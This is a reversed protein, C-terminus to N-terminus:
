ISQYVNSKFLENKFNELNFKNRQPFNKLYLHACEILEMNNIKKTLESLSSYYLPYEYGLYDIIPGLKNVFIPTNRVICEVILNSAAVEEYNTFVLNESLLQDYSDNEVDYLKNQIKFLEKPIESKQIKSSLLVTKRFITKSEVFLDVKRLHHGIHLLKKNKNDNFSDMSFKKIGEVKTPHHLFSIPINKFQPQKEFLKKCASSLVFIGKLNKLCEGFDGRREPKNLIDYVNFWERSENHPHHFVGVWPNKKYLEIRETNLTDGAIFTAEVAPEFLIHEDVSEIKSLFDMVGWWGFYHHKWLDFKEFKLKSKM